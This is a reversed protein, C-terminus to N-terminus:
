RSATPSVRWEVVINEADLIVSGGRDITVVSVDDGVARISWDRSWSARVALTKAPAAVTVAIEVADLNVIALYRGRSIAWWRPRGDAHLNWFCQPLPQSPLDFRHWSILESYWDRLRAPDPADLEGWDLVSARVTAPDQPDPIYGEPWGHTAFEERRGATVAAGLDEDFSTFYLWPTSAGWEEGMFLMPTYPLAMLLAAAAALRDREVLHTLREGRARNGIQDHTQVSAVYRQPPTVSFDVPRGHTRGRFSSWRGDHLFARELARCANEADAFDAYYGDREGTLIWHLAHHVDDDWQATMGLGGDGATTVTRPDNRDSEAIVSLPRGVEASLVAISATLEELFPVARSDHLEHVADLRVGDLHFDVIWGAVSSLLIARVDDSGQGDLNLARGWPTHHADTFVPGFDDWYNGSPGLHNHVIDLLVALGARHAEQVFRHLAAPGGYAEHVANLAVGDYGWGHVGDFAALPMLEVHTVGLTVLHELRDAASDLRGAPTFTGVHLEYIVSDGALERGSWHSDDWAFAGAEYVRSPGHVGEPLWRALPDPRVVDDVAILYDVCHPPASAVFWGPRDDDPRMLSRVQGVIVAVETANPAWVRLALTM